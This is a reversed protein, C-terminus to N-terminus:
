VGSSMRNEALALAFHPSIRPSDLATDVRMWGQVHFQENQKNGPAQALFHVQSLFAPDCELSLQM